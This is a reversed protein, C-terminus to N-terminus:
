GKSESRKRRVRFSGLILEDLGSERLLEVAEVPRHVIPQRHVNLSTNLLMPTGTLIYFRELLKRFAPYASKDVSQVRASGDVHVAGAIGGARGPRVTYIKNMFPTPQFGLFYDDAKESLCSPSLPIFEDRNKITRTVRRALEADAPDCLICRHGLARPGFEERGQFWGIIRGKALQQAAYEATDGKIRRYDIGRCSQLIKEIERDHYDVGLGTDDRFLPGSSSHPWGSGLLEAELAAGIPTSGDGPHPSIYIQKVNDLTELRRNIQANLFLGGSLVFSSIRHKAALHSVLGVVNDGWIKQAAAAVDEPKHEKLLRCLKRGSRSGLFVDRQPTTIYDIWYRYPIWRGGRFRSCIRALDEICRGAEGAAALGMVKGEGAMYDFGLAVAIGSYFCGSAHLPIDELFDMRGRRCLYVAGAVNRGTDHPAFGGYSIGIARDFGSGYFAAAVHARHHDYYVVSQAGMGLEALAGSHRPDLLAKRLNPLLTRALAFPRRLLIASLSRPLDLPNRAMLSRYYRPPPYPCVVADIRGPDVGSYDLAARIADVPFRPDNKVRSIREQALAFTLRGQQLLAVTSQSHNGTMDSLGLINM